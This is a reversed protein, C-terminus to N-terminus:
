PLLKDLFFFIYIYIYLYIKKVGVDGETNLNKNPHFKNQSRRFSSYNIANGTDQQILIIIIEINKM